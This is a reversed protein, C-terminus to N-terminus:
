SPEVLRVVRAVLEKLAALLDSEGAGADSISVGALWQGSRYAALHRVPRDGSAPEIVVGLRALQKRLLEWDQWDAVSWGGEAQVAEHGWEPLDEWEDADTM